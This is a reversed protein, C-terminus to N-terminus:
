KKKFLGRIGESLDKGKELVDKTSESGTKLLKSGQETVTKTLETAASLTSKLTGTLESPLIGTTDTAIQDAIALLIKASLKAADLKNDSGLDTMNIPSLNITVTDIKGPVPLLKANVVANTIKLNKIHLKKGSPESEEKKRDAKPLSSIIEELNSGTLGRQEFTIEIGDFLIEEIEIVDTFLSRIDVDFRAKDLKLLTPYQFGPPNEIVLDDIRLSGALISLDVDGVAVGVNLAKTGATEIAVKVARDAFFNILLIIIIILLVVAPIVVRISKFLKM